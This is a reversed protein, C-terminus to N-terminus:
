LCKKDEERQDYNEHGREFYNGGKDFNDMGGKMNQIQKAENAEDLTTVLYNAKKRMFCKLKVVEADPLEKAVEMFCPCPCDVKHNLERLKKNTITDIM